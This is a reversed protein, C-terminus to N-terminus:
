TPRPWCRWRDVAPRLGTWGPWWSTAAPRTLDLPEAADGLLPVSAALRDALDVGHESLLAGVRAGLRQRGGGGRGPLRRRPPRGAAQGPPRRRGRGPGVRAAGITVVDPGEPANTVPGPRCRPTRSCGTSPCTCSPCSGTAPAGPRPWRPPPDAEEALLDAARDRMRPSSSPLQADAPLLDPLLHRRRGRALAAVVGHRRLDGGRALRDWQERGWPEAAM